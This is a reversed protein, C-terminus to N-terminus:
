PTVQNANRLVYRSPDLVAWTSTGELRFGSARYVLTYQPSESQLCPYLYYLARVRAIDQYAVGVLRFTSGAPLTQKCFELFEFFDKGYIVARRTEADSRVLTDYELWLDRNRANPWLLFFLWLLIWLKLTIRLPPDFPNSV